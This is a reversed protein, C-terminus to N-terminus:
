LKLNALPVDEDSNCDINTLILLNSLLVQQLLPRTSDALKSRTIKHITKASYETNLQPASRSRTKFLNLFKNQMSEQEPRQLRGKRRRRRIAREPITDDYHRALWQIYARPKLEPHCRAPVWFLSLDSM